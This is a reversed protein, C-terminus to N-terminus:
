YLDLDDIKDEDVDDIKEDIIETHTEIIDYLDTSKFATHEVLYHDLLCQIHSYLQYIEETYKLEFLDM